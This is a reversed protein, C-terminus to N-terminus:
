PSQAWLWKLMKGLVSENVHGERGIYKSEEANMELNDKGNSGRGSELPSRQISMEEVFGTQSKAPSKNEFRSGAIAEWAADIMAIGAIATQWIKMVDLKWRFGMRDEPWVLSVSQSISSECNGSPIELLVM